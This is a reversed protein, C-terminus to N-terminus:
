GKGLFDDIERVTGLSRTPVDRDVRKMLGALVSGARSPDATVQHVDSDQDITPTLGSADYRLIGGVHVNIFLAGSADLALSRM